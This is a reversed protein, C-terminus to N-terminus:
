PEKREKPVDKKSEHFDGHCLTVRAVKADHIEIDGTVINFKGFINCKKNYRDYNKCTVCPRLISSLM